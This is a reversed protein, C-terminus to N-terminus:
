EDSSEHWWGDKATGREGLSWEPWYRRKTEPSQEESKHGAFKVVLFDGAPPKEVKLKLWSLEDAESKRTDVLFVRRLRGPMSSTLTEKPKQPSMLVLRLDVNRNNLSGESTLAELLGALRAAKSELQVKTFAGICKAEVLIIQVSGSQRPYAIILDVDEQSNEVAARASAEESWKTNPHATGAPSHGTLAAYLWNLHYDMAMYTESLRSRDPPEVGAAKAVEDVFDADATFGGLAQRILWYREKANFNKLRQILPYKDVENM